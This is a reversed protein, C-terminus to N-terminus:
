READLLPFRAIAAKSAVLLSAGDRAFALAEIARTAGRYFQIAGSLHVHAVLGARTGVALWGRPHWALCTVETTKTTLAGAGALMRGLPLCLVERGGDVEFVSLDRLGDRGGAGVAVHGGDPSVALARMQYGLGGTGMPHSWLLEWTPLRAAGVELFGGYLAVDGRVALHKLRSWREYVGCRVRLEAGGTFADVEAVGDAESDTFLGSIPLHRGAFGPDLARRGHYFGMSRSLFRRDDLWVFPPQLPFRDLQQGSEHDIMRVESGRWTQPSGDGPLSWASDRGTLVLPRSPHVAIPPAVDPYARLTELTDAARVYLVGQRDDGQADLCRGDALVILARGNPSPLSAETQRAAGAPRSDDRGSPLLSHMALTRM